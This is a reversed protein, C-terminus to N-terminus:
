SGIFFDGVFSLIKAKSKLFMKVREEGKETLTYVRKRGGETSETYGRRESRYLTSYITGSSIFLPFRKSIFKVLDYGSMANQRLKMLILMDLFSRVLRKEIETPFESEL